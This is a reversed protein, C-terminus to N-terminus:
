PLLCTLAIFRTFFSLLYIYPHLENIPRPIICSMLMLMLVFVFVYFCYTTTKSPNHAPSGTQVSALSVTEESSLARHVYMM